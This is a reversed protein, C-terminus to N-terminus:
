NIREAKKGTLNEWRRIIVDCYHPDLEMIFCNRGTQECAILTTGSGGFLDLVNMNAKTSNKIQYEFLPVPKMTPHEANRVPRDFELVTTQKRDSEWCHAAGEKWGYLCPEHKWQYDQRGMVFSNKVWILTQRVEWNTAQCALLFENVTRSAHWIYFAAGPKMTKDAAAFAATLMGGLAEPALADNEIKLARETKGIYDVGYPPDTLLLDIKLGGETLAIVQSRDTSDGCMIRHPGLQYIDGPKVTTSEPPTPDFDDDDGPLDDQDIDIDGLDFGFQAMDLASQLDGLEAALEDPLWEAAEATKNDALRYAKVKEPSLDSAVLVPVTELGLRKAARYRTHGCIIVNNADVVIPQRFGFERISAAVPEVAADNNRPNHEYPKIQGIPMDIIQM